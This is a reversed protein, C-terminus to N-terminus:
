PTGKGFWKKFGEGKQKMSNPAFAVSAKKRWEGKKWDGGPPTKQIDELSRILEILQDRKMNSLSQQLMKVMSQHIM